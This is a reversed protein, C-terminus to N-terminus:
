IKNEKAQKEDYKEQLEKTQKEIRAKLKKSDYLECKSWVKGSSGELDLTKRNIFLGEGTLIYRPKLSYKNLPSTYLKFKDNRFDTSMINYNFNKLFSYGYLKGSQISKCLLGKGELDAFSQASLFM